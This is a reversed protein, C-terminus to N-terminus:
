SSSPTSINAISPTLWEVTSDNILSTPNSPMLFNPVAFCNAEHNLSAGFLLILPPFTSDLLIGFPLLLNFIAKRLAALAMPFKFSDVGSASKKLRIFKLFPLTDAILAVALFSATM